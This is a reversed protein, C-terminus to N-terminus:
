GEIREMAYRDHLLKTVKQSAGHSLGELLSRVVSEQDNIATQGLKAFHDKLPYPFYILYREDNLCTLLIELMDAYSVYVDKNM